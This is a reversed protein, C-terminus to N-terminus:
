RARPNFQPSHACRGRGPFTPVSRVRNFYERLPFIGYPQTERFARGLREEIAYVRHFYDGRSMGLRACCGRWDGGQLFHLDFVRWHPHDLTRKAILFFDAVYDEDAREYYFKHAAGGPFPVMSVARIANRESCHQFRAYCARFIERLVCRCVYRARQGTGSCAACSVKSLALAEGSTWTHGNSVQVNERPERTM